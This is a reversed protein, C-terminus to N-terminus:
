FVFGYSVFPGGAVEGVRIREIEKKASWTKPPLSTRSSRASAARHGDGLFVRASRETDTWHSPCRASSSTTSRRRPSPRSSRSRRPSRGTARARQGRAAARRGVDSRVEAALALRREPLRGLLLRGHGTRDLRVGPTESQKLVGISVYTAARRRRAGDRGHLALRVVLGERLARDRAAPAAPLRDGRLRVGATGPAGRQRTELRCAPGRGLGRSAVVAKRAHSFRCDERAHADRRVDEAFVVDTADGIAIQGILEGLPDAAPKPAISQASALDLRRPGFRQTERDTPVAPERARAEM